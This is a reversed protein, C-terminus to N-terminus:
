QTTRLLVFQDFHMEGSTGPDIGGFGGVQAHEICYNDNHLGTIEGRLTDGKYLRLFGTGAGAKWEVRLKHQNNTLVQLVPSFGGGNTRTDVFTTFDETAVAKRIGMRVVASGPQSARFILHQDGHDMTLLNRMFFEASYSTECMPSNDQLYANATDNYDVQLGFPTSQFSAGPTVSITAAFLPSGALVVLSLAASLSPRLRQTKM